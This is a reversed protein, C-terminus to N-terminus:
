AAGLLWALVAGGPLGPGAHVLSPREPLAAPTEVAPASPAPAAPSAPDEPPLADEPLSPDLWAAGTWIDARVPAAPAPAAIEEAPTVAAPPEPEDMLPGAEALGAGSVEAGVPEAGVLALERPPAPETAVADPEGTPASAPTAAPDEALEAAPAVAVQGARWWYSRAAAARRHDTAAIDALLAAVDAPAGTAWFGDPGPQGTREAGVVPAAELGAILTAPARGPLAGAGAGAEDLRARLAAEMGAYWGLDGPLVPPPLATGLDIMVLPFRRGVRDRSPALVGAMPLGAMAEGIWFCLVPRAAGVRDWVREWDPGLADRCQGMAADLWSELMALPAPSLGVQLFDGWGPHKGYLALAM